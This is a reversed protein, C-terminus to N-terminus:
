GTDGNAGSGRSGRQLRGIPVDFALRCRTGDELYLTLERANPRLRDWIERAVYVIGYRRGWEGVELLVFREPNGPM